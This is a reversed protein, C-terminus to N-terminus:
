FETAEIQFLFVPDRPSQRRKMEALAAPLPVQCCWPPAQESSLCFTLHVLGLHSQSALSFYVGPSYGRM